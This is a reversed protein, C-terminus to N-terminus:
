SRLSQIDTRRENCYTDPSISGIMSTSHQAFFIRSNRSVHAGASFLANAFKAPGGRGYLELQLLHDLSKIYRLTQQDPLPDISLLLLSKISTWRGIIRLLADGDVSGLTSHHAPPNMVHRTRPCKLIDRLILADLLPAAEIMDLFLTFHDGCSTVNLGRLRPLNLRRLRQPSSRRITVIAEYVINELTAATSKLIAYVDELSPPFVPRHTGLDIYYPTDSEMQGDSNGTVIPSPILSADNPRAPGKRSVHLGGTRSQMFLWFEHLNPM